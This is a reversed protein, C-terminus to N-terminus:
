ICFRIMQTGFGIASLVNLQMLPGPKIGMNFTQARHVYMNVRESM